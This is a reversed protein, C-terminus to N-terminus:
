AIRSGLDPRPTHKAAWGSLFTIATTLVPALLSELWDPLGAIINVNTAANLIAMLLVGGLYSGLSAAKVKTEIPAKAYTPM